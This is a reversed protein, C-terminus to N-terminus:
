KNTLKDLRVYVYGRPSVKFAFLVLDESFHLNLVERAVSLAREGWKADGLVIGGGDGGDGIQLLGVFPM